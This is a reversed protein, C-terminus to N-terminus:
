FKFRAVIFISAVVAAVAGGFIYAVSMDVKENSAESLFSDYRKEFSSIRKRNM